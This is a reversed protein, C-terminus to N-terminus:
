QNASLQRIEELTKHGTDDFDWGDWTTASVVRREGICFDVGDVAGYYGTNIEISLNYELVLNRLKTRFDQIQEPTPTPKSM